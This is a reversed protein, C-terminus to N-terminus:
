AKVELVRSLKNRHLDSIVEVNGFIIILEEVVYEQSDGNCVCFDQNRRVDTEGWIKAMETFTLEMKSNSLDFIRTDVKLDRVCLGKAFGGKSSGGQDLGCNDKAHIIEIAEFAM